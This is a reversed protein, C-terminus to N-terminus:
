RNSPAAQQAEKPKHRLLEIGALLIVLSLITLYEGVYNEYFGPSYDHLLSNLLPFITLGLVAGAFVLTVDRCLPYTFAALALLATVLLSVTYIRAYLLAIDSGGEMGLMHTIQIGSSPSVLAAALYLAAFCWVGAAGIWYIIKSIQNMNKPVVYLVDV